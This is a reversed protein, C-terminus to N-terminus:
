STSVNRVLMEGLDLHHDIGQGWAGWGPLVHPIAPDPAATWHTDHAHNMTVVGPILDVNGIFGTFDTVATLGGHTELLFSAHAIYQLRVTFEDALPTGFTARTVFHLGPAADAIAICHSARRGETQAVAAVATLNLFIILLVRLM